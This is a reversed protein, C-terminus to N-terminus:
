DDLSDEITQSPTVRNLEQAPTWTYDSIAVRYQKALQEILGDFMQRRHHYRFDREVQARVAELEPQQAQEHQHVLVLHYGMVSQIPGVWQGLPIDELQNAFQEGYEWSLQQLSCQRCSPALMSADSVRALQQANASFIPDDSDALRALVASASQRHNFFLQELTYREPTQYQQPNDRLYAALEQDTVSISSVMDAAYREMKSLLHRRIEADDQDLGMAVAERYMIEDRVYGEVLAEIEKESASRSWTREFSDILQTMHHSSVTVVANDGSIPESVRIYLGYLCCSLLVFVMLPETLVQRFVRKKDTPM